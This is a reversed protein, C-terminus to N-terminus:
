GERAGTARDLQVVQGGSEVVEKEAFWGHGPVPIFRVADAGCALAAELMMRNGLRPDEVAEAFGHGCAQCAFDTYITPLFPVRDPLRGSFVARMREIGNWNM